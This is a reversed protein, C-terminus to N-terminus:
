QKEAERKARAEALMEAVAAVATRTRAMRERNAKSGDMLRELSFLWDPQKMKKRFEAVFPQIKGYQFYMEGCTDFVLQESLAGSAVFAAVMDWYGYVQFLFGSQKGGARVIDLMEEASAPLFAGGIYSRAERMVTERRLEFLKVMLEAQRVAIEPSIKSGRKKM